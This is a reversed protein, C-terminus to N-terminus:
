FPVLFDCVWYRFSSIEPAWFISIEKGENKEMFQKAKITM